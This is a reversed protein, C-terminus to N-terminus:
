KLTCIFQGCAASLESGASIQYKFHVASQRLVEIIEDTKKSEMLSVGPAGNYRLLRLEHRKLPTETFFEMLHRIAEPSDNVNDFLIYHFIVDVDTRTTEDLIRSLASTNPMLSKRTVDETSHLSIFLRVPTRTGTSPISKKTYTHVPNLPLNCYWVTEALKQIEEYTAKTDVLPYSTGIDVGDIGKIYRHKYAWLFVKRIIERMETGACFVDGMGMFSIKLYRGKIQKASLKIAEIASKIITDTDIPKHMFRKATLHCFKCGQKCGASVSLFIVAKNNDKFIDNDVDVCTRVTKVTTESGNHHVYKFVTKATNHYIKTIEHERKDDMMMRLFNSLTDLNSSSVYQSLVLQEVM